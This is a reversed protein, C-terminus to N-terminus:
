LSNENFNKYYLKRVIFTKYLELKKQEVPHKTIGIQKLQALYWGKSHKYAM